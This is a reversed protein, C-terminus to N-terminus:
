PRTEAVRRRLTKIEFPRFDLPPVEPIPEELPNCAILDKGTGFIQDTVYRGYAEHLRPVEGSGDEARKVAAIVVNDASNGLYSHSAEQHGAKAALRHKRLFRVKASSLPIAPFLSNFVYGQHVLRNAAIGGPGSTFALEYCHAGADKALPDYGDSEDPQLDSSLSLRPSRLLSVEMSGDIFRHAIIGRNLVACCYDDDKNEAAVWHIAPWTGDPNCHVGNKPEYGPREIMGYPIEFIARNEPTTFGFHFPIFLRANRSDCDLHCRLDIRESGEQLIIETRWRLANIRVSVEHPRMHRLLHGSSFSIPQSWDDPLDWNLPTPLTGRIELLKIGAHSGQGAFAQVQMDAIQNLDHRIHFHKLTEWFTGVDDEAWLDCSGPGAVLRNLKKDVIGTLGRENWSLRYRDSEMGNGSLPQLADRLSRGSVLSRGTYQMGAAEPDESLGEVPALRDEQRGDDALIPRLHFRAYGCSPLRALRCRLRYARQGKMTVCAWDLICLPEGDHSQGQWDAICGDAALVLEDARIVVECEVGEVTWNMPNFAVLNVGDAFDGDAVQAAIWSGAELMIAGAGRRIQRLWKEMESASGDTHSGTIGDHFQTLSLTQWCRRLGEAPYAFGSRVAFCALKEATLLLHELERNQQKLRSRVCYCGTAIPNGESRLDIDEPSLDGCTLREIFPKLIGDLLDGQNLFRLEIGHEDALAQVDRIFDQSKITEETDCSLQMERLDSAAFAAFATSLSDAGQEVHIDQGSYDCFRCGEGACAPCTVYHYNVMARQHPLGLDDFHSKICIATGDLGRWFPRPAHGASHETEIGEAALGFMRGYLTIWPLGFLRAIQPMQASLGFVDPVAAVRPRIGFAAQLWTFSGLLNRIISEGHVMNTDIVSEGGGLIEVQGEQILRRLLPLRDPNRELYLRLTCTQEIAYRGSTGDLCEWWREFQLEEIDSYPRVVRGRLRFHEEFSRCWIPDHHDRLFVSIRKM